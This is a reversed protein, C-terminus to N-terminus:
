PKRMGTLSGILPARWTSQLRASADSSGPSQGHSKKKERERERKTDMPQPHRTYKKFPIAPGPRAPSPQAPSPQLPHFLVVLMEICLDLASRQSQALPMRGTHKDTVARSTAQSKKKEPPAPRSEAFPVFSLFFSLFFSQSVSHIFSHIFSPARACGFLRLSTSLM